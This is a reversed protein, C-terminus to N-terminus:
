KQFFGGIGKKDQIGYLKKLDKELKDVIESLMDSVLIRENDENLYFRGDKLKGIEVKIKTM